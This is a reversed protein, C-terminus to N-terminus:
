VTSCAQSDKIIIVHSAPLIMCQQCYSRQCCSIVVAQSMVRTCAPCHFEAPVAVSAAPASPPTPKRVVLRGDPLVMTGPLSADAVIQLESMPIGRARRVPDFATNQM